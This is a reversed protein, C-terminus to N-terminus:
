EICTPKIKGIYCARGEFYSKDEIFKINCTSFLPSNLDLLFLIHIFVIEIFVNFNCYICYICIVGIFKLLLLLFYYSYYVAYIVIFIHLFVSYIHNYCTNGYTFLLIISYFQLLYSEM